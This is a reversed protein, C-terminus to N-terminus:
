GYGQDLWRSDSGLIAWRAKRIQSGALSGHCRWFDLLMGMSPDCHSYSTLHAMFLSARLLLVTARSSYNTPLAVTAEEYKRITNLLIGARDRHHLPLPAVVIESADIAKIIDDTIGLLVCLTVPLVGLNRFRCTEEARVILTRAIAEDSAHIANM